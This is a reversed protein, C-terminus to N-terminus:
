KEIKKFWSSEVKKGGSVEDGSWKFGWARMNKDFEGMFELFHEKNVEFRLILEVDM